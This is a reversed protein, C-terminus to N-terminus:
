PTGSNLGQPTSGPHLHRPRQGVAPQFFPSWDQLCTKRSTQSGLHGSPNMGLPSMPPVQLPETNWRPWKSSTVDAGPESTEQHHRLCQCLLKLLLTHKLVKWFSPSLFSTSLAPGSSSKRCPSRNPPARISFRFSTSSLGWWASGECSPGQFGSSRM